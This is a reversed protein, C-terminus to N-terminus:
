SPVDSYWREESQLETAREESKRRDKRRVENGRDSGDTAALDYREGYRIDEQRKEKNVRKMAGKMENDDNKKGEEATRRRRRKTAAKSLRAKEKQNRINEKKRCPGDTPAAGTGDINKM